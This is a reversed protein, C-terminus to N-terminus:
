LFEEVRNKVDKDRYIKRHGLGRTIFFKINEQADKQVLLVDKVPTVKDDEDHIWMINASSNKIARRISFWEISHGSREKIINDFEQRVAKDSLGLIKFAEDAASTTETAPAIFVVKTNFDHKINELALSLALGGLSHAIFGNFPGFLRDIEEIMKSYQLANITKGESLGHAPADFACVQYSKNILAAIYPQFNHAASGFGHLILIKNPKNKKWRYGRIKLGDFMFQLKEAAVFLTTPKSASRTFPTCFIEFTKNASKRKSVLSLLILKTRIYQIALKEKLKM